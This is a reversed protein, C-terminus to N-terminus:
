KLLYNSGISAEVSIFFYIVHMKRRSVGSPSRGHGIDDCLIADLAFIHIADFDAGHIAEIGPLIHEDDM